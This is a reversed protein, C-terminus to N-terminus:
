RLAEVRPKRVMRLLRSLGSMAKVAAAVTVAATVTPAEM